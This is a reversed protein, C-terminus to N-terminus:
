EYEVESSRALAERLKSNQEELSKIKAKLEKVEIDYESIQRCENFHKEEYQKIGAEYGQRYAQEVEDNVKFENHKNQIVAEFHTAESMKEAGKEKEIRAIQRDLKKQIIDDILESSILIKMQEAMIIVDAVEGALDILSKEYEVLNDSNRKAKQAALIAEACEEEFQERQSRYGYHHAIIKIRYDM